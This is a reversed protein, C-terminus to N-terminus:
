GSCRSAYIWSVPDSTHIVKDMKMGGATLLNEWQHKTREKGSVLGLMTLDLFKSPHPQGGTPLIMELIAVKSDPRMAQKINQLIVLCEEDSWDHLILCLMYLSANSPISSRNFFTGAKFSIRNTMDKAGIMEDASTRVSELDLIIGKANSCKELAQLLVSGNGGGVDVIVDDKTNCSEQDFYEFASGRLGESLDSMSQCFAANTEPHATLYDFFSVGFALESGTKESGKVVDLLHAFPAYQAGHRAIAFSRLSGPAKTSLTLSLPTNSFTQPKDSVVVFVGRMTLAHLMRELREFNCGANKALDKVHKPGDELLDPIGLKAAVFLAQSFQFGGLMGMMQLRPLSSSTGDEKSM